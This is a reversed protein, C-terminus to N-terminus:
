LYGLNELENRRSESLSQHTSQYEQSYKRLWDELKDKLVKKEVSNNEIINDRENPLEYLREVDTLHRRVIYPKPNKKLTDYSKEPPKMQIYKFRDNRIALSTANGEHAKMMGYVYDKANQKGKIVEQMPIGPLNKLPRTEELEYLITPLIDILEVLGPIIESGKNQHPLKIGLPVHMLEDYLPKALHGIFGNRYIFSKVLPLEGYKALKSHQLLPVDDFIEGHDGTIIILTDKYLGRKELESFILDLQDLTFQIEHEYQQRPCGKPSDPSLYPTHADFFWLVSAFGSSINDLFEEAVEDARAQHCDYNSKVDDLNHVEDFLCDLGWDGSFFNMGSFVSVDTDLYDGIGSVHPPFSDHISLTDHMPPYQGSFMSASVTLTYASQTFCDEFWSFDDEKAISFEDKSPSSTVPTSLSDYRLCDIVCWLVNM